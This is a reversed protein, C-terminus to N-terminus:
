KKNKEEKRLRKSEKRERKKEEKYADTKKGIPAITNVLGSQITKWLYNGLGKYEVRDFSMIVERVKNNKGPNGKHVIRNIGWSKFKSKDTSESKLIKTELDHYLMTMKGFSSYNDASADFILGDLYGNSIKIGLAPYLASEYDKFKSAALSGKFYFTNHGDALPLNLKVEMKAKNMLKSELHITLPTKRHTRITTINDIRAKIDNLSVTMLETRKAEREEYKLNSNDIKIKHILLPLEMKKLKYNILVPRKNTNFPKRKDKYIKLNLGMIEISDIFVGENKLTRSLDYNYINLDGIEVNFIESTYKYSKALANRHVTPKLSIKKINLVKKEFNATIRDISLRYKKDGFDIDIKDLKFEDDFLKLRFLHTKINELMFGSSQFSIPITQFTIADTNIDFVQYKIDSFNIKDIEFGNINKIYISDLNVPESKSLGKEKIKPNIIKEIILGNINFSSIKINKNFILKIIGIGDLKISSATFKQLSNKSSEGSKLKSLLLDTPIYSINKLTVSSSLLKFRVKDVSVIYSESNKHLLAETIKKTILYSVIINASLIFVVLILTILISKKHKKFNLM